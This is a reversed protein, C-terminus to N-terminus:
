HGNMVGIQPLGNGSGVGLKPIAILVWCNVESKPMTLCPSGIGFVFLFIIPGEGCRKAFCSCDGDCGNALVAYVAFM